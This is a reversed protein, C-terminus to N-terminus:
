DYTVDDSAQFGKTRWGTDTCGKQSGAIIISASFCLVIIRQRSAPPAKHKLARSIPGKFEGNDQIKLQKSNVIITFKSYQFSSISQSFITM